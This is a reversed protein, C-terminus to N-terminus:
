TLSRTWTRTWTATWSAPPDGRRRPTGTLCATQNTSAPQDVYFGIHALECHDAGAQLSSPDWNAHRPDNAGRQGRLGPDATICTSQGPDPQYTGISCAAQSTASSYRRLARPRSAQLEAHRENQWAGPNCPIQDSLDSPTSGPTRQFALM